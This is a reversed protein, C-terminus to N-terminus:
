SDPALFLAGWERLAEPGWWTGSRDKRYHRRIWRVMHDFWASLEPSPTCSWTDLCLRGTRPPRHAYMNRSFEVIGCRDLHWNGGAERRGPMPALDPNWLAYFGAEPLPAPYDEAAVEPSGTTARILVAQGTSRVADLFAVEDADAMVFYTQRGM